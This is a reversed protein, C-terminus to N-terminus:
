HGKRAEMAGQICMAYIWAPTHTDTDTHLCAVNLNCSMENNRSICM